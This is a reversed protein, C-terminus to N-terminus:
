ILGEIQQQTLGSGGSTAAAADLAEQVTSSALFGGPTYSVEAAPIREGVRENPQTLLDHYYDKNASNM